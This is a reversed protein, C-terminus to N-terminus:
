IYQTLHACEEDLEDRYTDIWYQPNEEWSERSLGITTTVEWDELIVDGYEGTIEDKRYDWRSIFELLADEYNYRFGFHKEGKVLYVKSYKKM